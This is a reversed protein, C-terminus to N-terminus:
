EVPAVTWKEGNWTGVYKASTVTMATLKNGGTITFECQYVIAPDGSGVAGDGVQKTVLDSIETWSAVTIDGEDDIPEGAAYQNTVESLVSTKITNAAEMFSKQNANDVWKLLSPVLMAALIAIIVIVIVIEILTMGKKNKLNKLM